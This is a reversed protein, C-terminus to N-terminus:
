IFLTRFLVDSCKQLNRIKSKSEGGLSAQSIDVQQHAVPGVTIGFGVARVQPSSETHNTRQHLHHQQSQHSPSDQPTWTSNPDARLSNELRCRAVSHYDDQTEVTRSFM